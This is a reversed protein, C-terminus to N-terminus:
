GARRAPQLVGAGPPLAFDGPRQRLDEIVRQLSAYREENLENFM